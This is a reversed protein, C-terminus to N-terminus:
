ARARHVSCIQLFEREIRRDAEEIVARETRTRARHLLHLAAKAVRELPLRNLEEHPLELREEIASETEDPLKFGDGSFFKIGNDHAPNHSASIVAGAALEHDTVYSAVGPTPLVGLLRM